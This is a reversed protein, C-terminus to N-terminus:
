WCMNVKPFSQLYSLGLWELRLGVCMDGISHYGTSLSVPVLM